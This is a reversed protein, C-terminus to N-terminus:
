GRRKVTKGLLGLAALGFGIFGFTAPEPNEATASLFDVNIGTVDPSGNANNFVDFQITNTGLVFNANSSDLTFSTFSKFEGAANPIIGNAGTTVETGNVVIYGYNDASWEGIIVATSPDVGILSFTEQYVYPVTPSNPNSATERALPSIWESTSGFSGDKFWAGSSFPFQSLASGYTVFPAFPSPVSAGPGSELTWNGDTGLPLVKSGGATYGTGFINITAASALGSALVLCALITRM